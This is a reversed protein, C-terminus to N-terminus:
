EYSRLFFSSFYFIFLFWFFFFDRTTLLVFRSICIPDSLPNSQLDPKATGTEREEKSERQLFFFLGEQSETNGEEGERGKRKQKEGGRKRGERWKSKKRRLDAEKEERWKM